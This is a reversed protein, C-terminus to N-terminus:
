EEVLLRILRDCANATLGSVNAVTTLIIQPLHQDRQALSRIQSDIALAVVGITASLGRLCDRMAELTENDLATDPNYFTSKDVEYKRFLEEQLPILERVCSILENHHNGSPVKERLQACIRRIERFVSLYGKAHERLEKEPDFRFIDDFNISM